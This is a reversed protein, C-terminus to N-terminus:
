FELRLAVQIVRPDGQQSTIQGFNVSSLTTVPGALSAHNFVNFAEARFNLHFLEPTPLSKLFGFDMNSYGPGIMINRGSNGFTGIANPVFSSTEFYKAIQQQKSAGRFTILPGVRDAMDANVGSRSNDVGSGIGFPSGSNIHIIGNVQWGNVLSRM